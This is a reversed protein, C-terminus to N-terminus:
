ARTNSNFKFPAAILATHTHTTSTTTMPKTAMHEAPLALHITADMWSFTHKQTAVRKMDRAMDHARRRIRRIHSCSQLWARGRPLVTCPCYPRSRLPLLPVPFTAAKLYHHSPIHLVYLLASSQM